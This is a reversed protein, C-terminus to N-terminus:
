LMKGKKLKDSLVLFRDISDQTIHKGDPKSKISNNKIHKATDARCGLIFGLLNEQDKVLLQHYNENEKFFEQLLKYRVAVTTRNKDSVKEKELEVTTSQKPSNSPDEGLLSHCFKTYEYNIVAVQFDNITQLHFFNNDKGFKEYNSKIEAYLKGDIGKYKESHKREILKKKDYKSFKATYNKLVIELYSTRDLIDYQEIKDTLEKKLVFLAMEVSKNFTDEKALIIKSKEPCSQHKGGILIIGWLPHTPEPKGDIWDEFTYDIM